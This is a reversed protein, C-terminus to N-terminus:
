IVFGPKVFLNLLRYFHCNKEVTRMEVKSQQQDNNLLYKSVIIFFNTLSQPDNM